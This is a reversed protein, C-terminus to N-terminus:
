VLDVKGALWREGVRQMTMVMRSRDIRPEPSVSNTVEQDIFLMVQVRDKTASKISSDVIRGKSVAKHEVLLAKLQNSSQTYTDKFEGTAGSSVAAFNQDINQSDISTLTVAYTQATSAAQRAAADIENRDHLKWGLVCALVSASVAVLTIAGVAARPVWRRRWFPPAADASVPSDDAVQDSDTTETATEQEPVSSDDTDAASDTTETATETELVSKKM